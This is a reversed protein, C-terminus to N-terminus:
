TVSGKKKSVGADDHLADGSKRRRKKGKARGRKGQGIGSGQGLEKGHVGDRSVPGARVSGHESVGEEVDEDEDEDEDGPLLALVDREGSRSDRSRGADKGRISAHLAAAADAAEAGGRIGAGADGLAAGALDGEVERQQRATLSVTGAWRGGPAFDACPSVTREAILSNVIVAIRASSHRADTHPIRELLRRMSGRVSPHRYAELVDTKEDDSGVYRVRDAAISSLTVEPFIRRWYAVWEADERAVEDDGVIDGDEEYAARRESDSLLAFVECIVRFKNADGGKDPHNILSAKLYGRRLDTQSSESTCGLLAFLDKGAEEGFSCTIEDALSPM